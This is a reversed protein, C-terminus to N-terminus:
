PSEVRFVPYAFTGVFRPSGFNCVTIPLWGAVAGPLVVRSALSDTIPHRTSVNRQVARPFVGGAHCVRLPTIPQSRHLPETKLVM